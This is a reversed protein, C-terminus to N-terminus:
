RKPHQAAVLQSESMRFEEGALPPYSAVLSRDCAVKMSNAPATQRISYKKFGQSFPVRRRSDPSHFFDGSRPEGLRLAHSLESADLKSRARTETGV